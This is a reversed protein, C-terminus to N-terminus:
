PWAKIKGSIIHCHLHPIIQGGKRGVNFVIKYGTLKKRQAFIKAVYLMEGLVEKDKEKVGKLSPIHKKSIVLFHYDARPNIDKIIIVKDTEYLIKSKVEGKVIQCFICEKM